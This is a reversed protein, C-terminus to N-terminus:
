KPFYISLNDSPHLHIQPTIIYYKTQLVRQLDSADMQCNIWINELIFFDNTSNRKGGLYIEGFRKQLDKMIMIKQYNQVFHQIKRMGNLM